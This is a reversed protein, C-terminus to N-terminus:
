FYREKLRVIDGPLVPLAPDFDAAQEAGERGKIFVKRLDAKYSAGGSRAILVGLTLGDEYAISGAQNVAGIVLISAPSTLHLRVAGGNAGEILKAIEDLTLGAIKTSGKRPVTAAGEQNVSFVGLITPTGALTAELMDGALVRYQRMATIPPPAPAASIAAAVGQPIAAIKAGMEQPKHQLWNSSCAAFSLIALVLVFRRAFVTTSNM